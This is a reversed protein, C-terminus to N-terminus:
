PALPRITVSDVLLSGMVENAGAATAPQIAASYGQPWNPDPAWANLYFRMPGAPINDTTTRVLRGDILWSVAKATWQIEYTHFDTMAGSRYPIFEVHGIGLPENGYINTQVKDPVNTLLEFDIEDHITNSGAQLAYLFLGGVVGPRLPAGMKARVVIDIGKDPSFETNSILEAGLFSPEKQNYSELPIVLNGGATAPFGSTQTVRFQTRGVFTGDGSATFTPIHWPRADVSSGNFDDHLITDGTAAFAPGAVAVAFVLALLFTATPSEAV